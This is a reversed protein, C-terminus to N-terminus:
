GAIRIWRDLSLVMWLPWVNRVYGTSGGQYRRELDDYMALVTSGDVWGRRALELDDFLSRGGQALFEEAFLHAYDAKDRRQAVTDPILGRVANRLVFKTLDGRRRQDEPVALAFEVVRRDDFPDRPELGAFSMAREDLENAHSLWGSSLRQAVESAALNGGRHLGPRLRDELHIERCFSDRVFRPCMSRGAAARLPGRWTAPIHPKLGYEWLHSATAHPHAGAAARLDAPLGRLRGQRLRDALGLDSGALWEDPGKGTLLARCGRAAAETWYSRHMMGNPYNPLDLFCRIQEEYPAAGVAQPAFETVDLGHLAAVDHIFPSEDCSLGPYVMAFLELRGDYRHEHRLYESFGLLSASDVGGSLAAAVPWPSALRTELATACLDRLHEAYEEERAYRLRADPEWDWYRVVQSGEASLVMYHAPPLRSVGRYLTDVNSVPRATLFEGVMGLNPERSVEDDALVGGLESAFRFWAPGLAYYFPRKGLFDRGCLLRQRREDWLAFSFDGLLRPLCDVGWKTYCHLLLASDARDADSRGRGLAAWLEVRNDIRGDLTVVLGAVDDRAPQVEDLSQFTTRFMCHALGIAGDTWHQIGQPGRHTMAGTMAALEGTQVPRGDFRLIGAIGSM